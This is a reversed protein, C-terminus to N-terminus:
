NYYPNEMALFLQQDANMVYCVSIVIFVFGAALILIWTRYLEIPLTYAWYASLVRNSGRDIWLGRKDIDANEGCRASERLFHVCRSRGSRLFHPCRCFPNISQGPISGLVKLMRASVSGVISFQIEVSLFCCTKPSYHHYAISSSSIINSQKQSKAAKLGRKEWLRM